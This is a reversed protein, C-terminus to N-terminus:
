SQSRAHHAQRGQLLLREPLDTLKITKTSALVIARELVTALERLNGAWDYALLVDRAEPSLRAPQRHHHICLDAIIRETLHPIDESRERLPPLHIAFVNLRFFLDHRFQGQQVDLELDHSTAAIVRTSAAAPQNVGTDASRNEEFFRVLKAQAGAPLMGVDDLFLTGSPVSPPWRDDDHPVTMIDPRRDLSERGAKEPARCSVTVFPGAMRRSWGHITAALISKGTGTEGTLLVPMEVSAVQRATAIARLMGPNSSDLVLSARYPDIAVTGLDPRLVRM